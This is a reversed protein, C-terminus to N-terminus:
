VAGAVLRGREWLAVHVAWDHRGEAYERSGDLPDVLWVRDAQLRALDDAAEESLVGDDPRFQRLRDSLFAQAARDGATRLDSVSDHDRSLQLLLHGTQEALRRALGADDRGLVSAFQRM